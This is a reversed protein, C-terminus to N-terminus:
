LSIHHLTSLPCTVENWTCFLQDDGQISSECLADVHVLGDKYLESETLVSSITSNSLYALSPVISSSVDITSCPLSSSAALSLTREGDKNNKRNGPKFPQLIRKLFRSMTAAIFSPIALSSFHLFFAPGITPKISTLSRDPPQM